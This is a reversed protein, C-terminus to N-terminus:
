SGSMNSARARARRFRIKGGRSAAHSSLLTTTCAFNSYLTTHNAHTDPQVLPRRPSQQLPVHICTSHKLYLVGEPVKCVVEVRRAIVPRLAHLPCCHLMMEHLYAASSRISAFQCCRVYSCSSSSSSYATPRRIYKSGISDRVRIIRWNHRVARRALPRPHM